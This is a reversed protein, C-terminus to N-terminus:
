LAKRRVLGQIAITASQTGGSFGVLEVQWRVYRLLPTPLTSLTTTSLVPLPFSVPKSVAASGAYTLTFTGLPEWGDLKDTRQMSTLLTFDVNSGGVTTYLFYQMDIQDYASVDLVHDIDQVFVNSGLSSPYTLTLAPPTLLANDAM